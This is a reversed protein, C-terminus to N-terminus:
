FDRIQEFEDLNSIILVASACHYPNAYSFQDMDKWNYHPAWENEINIRRLILINGDLKEKKIYNQLYVNNGLPFTILFNDAQMMKLLLDVAKHPNIDTNGYDKAGVHEVTSISLLNSGKYDVTMADIRESKEHPDFQDIVRHNIDFYYPTVAGVEIVSSGDTGKYYKELFYRAIPIEIIRENTATQNYPHRFYEFQLNKLKMNM